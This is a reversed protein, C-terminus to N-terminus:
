RKLQREMEKAERQMCKVLWFFTPLPIEKFDEWPMPFTKWVAYLNEIIQQDKRLAQMLRQAASM